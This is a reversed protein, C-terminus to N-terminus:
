FQFASIYDRGQSSRKSSASPSSLWCVLLTAAPQGKHFLSIVLAHQTPPFCLIGIGLVKNELLQQWLTGSFAWLPQSVQGLGRLSELAESRLM